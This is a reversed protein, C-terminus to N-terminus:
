CLDTMVALRRRQRCWFTNRGDELDILVAFSDPGLRIVTSNNSCARPQKGSADANTSESRGRTPTDNGASPQWPGRTPSLRTPSPTWHASTWLRARWAPGEGGLECVDGVDRWRPWSAGSPASRPGCDGCTRSQAYTPPFPRSRASPPWAGTGMAQLGIRGGPWEAFGGWGASRRGSM